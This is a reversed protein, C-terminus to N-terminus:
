KQLIKNVSRDDLIALDGKGLHNCLRNEIEVDIIQHSTKIGLTFFPHLKHVYHGIGGVGDLLPLDPVWQCLTGPSHADLEIVGIAVHFELHVRGHVLPKLCAHM